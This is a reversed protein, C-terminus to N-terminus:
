EKSGIRAVVFDILKELNGKTQVDSNGKEILSKLTEAVRPKNFGIRHKQKFQEEYYKTRKPRETELPTVPKDPYTEAVARHYLEASVLDELEIDKDKFLEAGVIDRLMIIKGEPIGGAMLVDKLDRGGSDSDLCIVYPINARELFVPFYEKGEAVGGNILWSEKLNPRFTTVAADVIPKDAAGETLINIQSYALSTVLSAGIASRVPELLDFDKPSKVNPKGVKTGVMNKHLQVVRVQELRFPDIMAPSHTVYIVQSSSSYRDELFKKIDRQGDPHLELGPNDLLLIIGKTTSAEDLLTSYFSLYWQFGDSRESPPIRPAYKGDSISVSLREKEIRFHISYM